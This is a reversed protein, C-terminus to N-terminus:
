QQQIETLKGLTSFIRCEARACEWEGRTAIYCEHCSLHGNRIRVDTGTNADGMQRSCGGCQCVPSSPHRPTLEHTFAFQMNRKHVSQNIQVSHTRLCHSVKFCQMHFFLGLTDINM